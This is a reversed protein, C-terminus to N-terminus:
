ASVETRDHERAQTPASADKVQFGRASGSARQCPGDSGREPM